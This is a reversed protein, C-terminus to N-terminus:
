GCLKTPAVKAFYGPVPVLSWRICWFCGSTSWTQRKLTQVLEGSGLVVLDAGPDDKLRAVAGAADGELLTSNSWQLPERLTTSALVEALQEFGGYVPQGPSTRGSRTSIRTLEGGSCLAGSRAMGEGAAGGPRTATRVGVEMRSVVGCIRTRVGPHKCSGM